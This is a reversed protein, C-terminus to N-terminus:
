RTARINFFGEFDLTYGMTSVTTNLGINNYDSEQIKRLSFTEGNGIINIGSVDTDFYFKIPTDFGGMSMDLNNIKIITSESAYIDTNDLQVVDVVVQKKFLPIISIQALARESQLLIDESQPKYIIVNSLEISPKLSVVLDLDGNIKISIGAYKDVLNEIQPKYKNLDSFKLFGIAGAFLFVPLLVVILLFVLFKKM